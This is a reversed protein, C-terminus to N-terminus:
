SVAELLRSQRDNLLVAERCLLVRPASPLPGPLLWARGPACPHRDPSCSLCSQPVFTIRLLRPAGKPPRPPPFGGECVERRGSGPRLRGAEFMQLLVQPNFATRM